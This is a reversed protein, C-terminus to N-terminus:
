LVIKDVESIISSTDSEFDVHKSIANITSPLNNVAYWVYTFDLYLAKRCSWKKRVTTGIQVLPPLTLATGNPEPYPGTAPGQSCPSLGASEPAV